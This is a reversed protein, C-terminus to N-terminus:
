PEFVIETIPHIEWATAPVRQPPKFSGVVGPLHDIDYFLSGTVRVPVPDEFRLYASTGITLHWEGLFDKLAQRPVRLRERNPGGLPLGTIESNM